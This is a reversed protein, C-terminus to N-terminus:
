LDGFVLEKEQQICQFVATALDASEPNRDPHWKVLLRKVVARRDAESSYKVSLLQSRIAERLVTSVAVSPATSLQPQAVSSWQSYAARPRPTAQKAAGVDPERSPSDPSQAAAPQKRRFRPSPQATSARPGLPPVQIRGSTAAGNAAAETPSSSEGAGATATSSKSSAWAARPSSLPPEAAYDGAGATAPSRRSAGVGRLKSDRRHRRGACTPATSARPPTDPYLPHKPMATASDSRHHQQEQPARHQQRASSMKATIRAIDAQVEALCRTVERDRRKAEAATAEICQLGRCIQRRGTRPDDFELFHRRVGLHMGAVRRAPVKPPTEKEDWSPPWDSWGQRPHPTGIGDSDESDNCGEDADNERCARASKPAIGGVWGQTRPLAHM